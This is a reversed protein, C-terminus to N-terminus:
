PQYVFAKLTSGNPNALRHEWIQKLGGVGECFFLFLFFSFLSNDDILGRCNYSENLNEWPYFLCSIDSDTAGWWRCWCKKRREELVSSETARVQERERTPFSLFLELKSGYWLSSTVSRRISTTRYIFLASGPWTQFHVLLQQQFYLLWVSM